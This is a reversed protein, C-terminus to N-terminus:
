PAGARVTPFPRVTHTGSGTIWGTLRRSLTKRPAEKTVNASVPVLVPAYATSTLPAANLVAPGVGTSARLKRRAPSAPAAARLGSPEVVHPSPVAAVMSVTSALVADASGGAMGSATDRPTVLPAAILATTIVAAVTQGFLDRKQADSLRAPADVPSPVKCPPQM